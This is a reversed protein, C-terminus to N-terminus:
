PTISSIFLEGYKNQTLYSTIGMANLVEYLTRNTMIKGISINLQRAQLLLLLLTRLGSTDLFKLEILDITLEQVDKWQGKKQDIFSILEESSYMDLQGTIKIILKEDNKMEVIYLDSSTKKNQYLNIFYDLQMSNRLIEESTLSTSNSASKFLEKKKREFATSISLFPM